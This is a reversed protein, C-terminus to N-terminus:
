SSLPLLPKRLGLLERDGFLERQEDTLEFRNAVCCTVLLSVLDHFGYSIWIDSSFRGGRFVLSLSMSSRTPIVPFVLYMEGFRCFDLVLRMTMSLVALFFWLEDDWTFLKERSSFLSIMSLDAGLIWFLM